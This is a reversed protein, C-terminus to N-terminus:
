ALALRLVKAHVRLSNQVHEHIKKKENSTALCACIFFCALQVHTLLALRYVYCM